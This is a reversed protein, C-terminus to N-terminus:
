QAADAEIRRITKFYLEEPPAKMEDCVIAMIMAAEKEEVGILQVDPVPAAAPAPVAPAAAPASPQQPEDQKGRNLARVVLSMLILVVFVLAVGLLGTLLEGTALAALPLVPITMM